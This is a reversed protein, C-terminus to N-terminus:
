NGPQIIDFDFSDQKAIDFDAENLTIDFDAFDTSGDELADFDAQSTTYSDFDGIPILIAEFDLYSSAPIITNVSGSGTVQTDFRVKSPNRIGETPSLISIIWDGEPDVLSTILDFYYLGRFAISSFEPMPFPGAISGNPKLAYAQVDTLGTRFNKSWYVVREPKGLFGM